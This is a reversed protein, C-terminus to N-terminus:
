STCPMVVVSEAPLEPQPHVHRRRRRDGHLEDGAGRAPAGRRRAGGRARAGDHGHDGRRRGGRRRRPVGPGGPAGRRRREGDREAAGHAQRAGNRSPGVRRGGEGRPLVGGDQEGRVAAVGREPEEGVRGGGRDDVAAVVRRRRGAGRRRLGQRLHREDDHRARPRPLRHADRRAPRRRRRRRVCHRLRPARRPPAALSVERSRRHGHPPACSICSLNSFLYSLSAFHFMAYIPYSLRILTHYTALPKTM